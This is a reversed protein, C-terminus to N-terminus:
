RGVLYHSSFFSSHRHRLLERGLSSSPASSYVLQSFLGGLFTAMKPCYLDKPLNKAMTPWKKAMIPWKEFLVEKDKQFNTLNNM